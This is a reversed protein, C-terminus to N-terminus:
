EAQETKGALQQLMEVAADRDGEWARQTLERMHREFGPARTTSLNFYSSILVQDANLGYIHEQLQRVETSGDPAPEMVFINERKLTGAVIPSHTSFILQMQPLATAVMEIVRLQWEPHLHLDIEDILVVGPYDWLETGPKAISALHYALDTVWGVYARYGDSLAGFPVSLGRHEFLYERDRLNKDEHEMEGHFRLEEPLLRNILRLAADHVEPRERQFLPLWAMLPVLAVGEEFLGAVRRYRLRRRKEESGASYDGSEVRRTAGYGVIFWAPSDDEFLAPLFPGKQPLLEEYDGQRVIRSLLSVSEGPTIGTGMDTDHERPILAVEIAATKSDGRRVLHYPVFGSHTIVRALVGIACSKLVTTKGSGNNGLLLTVNPFPTDPPHPEDPYRLQLRAERFCRLNQISLNQIYM